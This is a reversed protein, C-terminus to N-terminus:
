DKLDAVVIARKFEIAEERRCLHSCGINIREKPGIAYERAIYGPTAGAQFPITIVARIAKSEHANALFVQKGCDGEGCEGGMSMSLYPRGQSDEMVGNWRTPAGTGAFVQTEVNEYTLEVSPGDVLDSTRVAADPSIFLDDSAAGGKDGGCALSFLAIAAIASISCFRIHVTM